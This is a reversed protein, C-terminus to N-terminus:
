LCGAVNAQLDTHLFPFIFFLLLFLDAEQDVLGSTQTSGHLTCLTPPSKPAKTGPWRTQFKDEELGDRSGSTRVASMPTSEESVHTRSGPWETLHGRADTMLTPIDQTWTHLCMKRLSPPPPPTQLRFVVSGGQSQTPGGLPSEEWLLWKASKAALSNIWLTEGWTTPFRSDTVDSLRRGVDGRRTYSNPLYFPM